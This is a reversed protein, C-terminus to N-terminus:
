NTRSELGLIQSQVKPGMDTWRQAQASPQSTTRKKRRPSQNWDRQLMAHSCCGQLLVGIRVWSIQKFTKQHVESPITRHNKLKPNAQQTNEHIQLIGILNDFWCLKSTTRLVVASFSSACDREEFKFPQSEVQSSIPKIIIKWHPIWGGAPVRESVRCKRWTLPCLSLTDNLQVSKCPPGM